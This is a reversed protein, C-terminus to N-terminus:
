IDSMEGWNKGVSLDVILPVKLKVVNEMAERVIEAVNKIKDEKVEFVLEDHVQLILKASETDLIKKSAALKQISAESQFKKSIEIMALKIIEAATGQFPTNVAVREGFKRLRDIPSQLEPILRRRGFMTEVYGQQYANKIVDQIYSHLQSFALFYKDILSQAEEVSIKLTEALGYASVGYLISFNVTKATRRDVGLEEATAKHIDEGGQFTKCMIRDHSMHAAIRLEIQSYDAVLLKCGKEAVFAQRIEKGLETRIPINQLNPNKSSLRGTITDIAYTTHIRGDAAILRPLPELYTNHLKALERYQLILKIVPHHHSIKALDRASTSPHTKGRRIGSAQAKIKLDKYLLEALQRPSNINFKHGVSNYIKTEIQLLQLSVKENLKALYPFDIKVGTKEMQRLIPELQRDIQYSDMINM